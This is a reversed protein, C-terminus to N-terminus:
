RYLSGFFEDLNDVGNRLIQSVDTGPKGRFREACRDPEPDNSRGVQFDTNWESLQRSTITIGRKLCATQVMTGARSESRPGLEGMVARLLGVAMARRLIEVEGPPRRHPASRRVADTYHWLPHETGQLLADLLALAPMLNSRKIRGREPHAVLQEQLAELAERLTALPFALKAVDDPIKTGPEEPINKRIRSYLALVDATFTEDDM